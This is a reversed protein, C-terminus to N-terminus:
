AQGGGNGGWEWEWKESGEGWYGWDYDGSDLLQSRLVSIGCRLSWTHIHKQRSIRAPLSTPALSGPKTTLLLHATFLHCPHLPVPSLTSIGTNRGM